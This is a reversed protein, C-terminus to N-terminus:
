RGSTGFLWEFGKYISRHLVTAHNEKPLPEYHWDVTKPAKKRFIRVFALMDGNMVKGENGISLYVNTQLEPYRDFFTEAEKLLSQHDWWFSPSIIMYDTFLEPQRLLTEAAFLGGLSQGILLNRGSTSFASDIYPRLETALFRRFTASGGTTPFDLKDKEVSTPFTLDRKRDVNAIGVVIAKPMLEYMSLFQVLGAIHPYDEHASGDLLYIVPYVVASDPHYGDPLYINLVRTEQMVQSSLTHIQGFPFATVSVTDQARVLSCFTLFLLIIRVSHPIFHM